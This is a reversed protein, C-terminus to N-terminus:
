MDIGRKIYNKKIIIGFLTKNTNLIVIIYSVNRLELHLM